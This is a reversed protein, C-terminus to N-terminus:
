GTLRNLIIVEIFSKEKRKQKGVLSTNYSCSTFHLFHIDGTGKRSGGKWDDDDDPVVDEEGEEEEEESEEDDLVITRSQIIDNCM